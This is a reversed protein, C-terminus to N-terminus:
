ADRLMEAPRVSAAARAPYLTAVVTLVFAVSAAVVVDRLQLKLPV